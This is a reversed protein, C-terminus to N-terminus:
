SVLSLDTAYRLGTWSFPAVGAKPKFRERFWSEAPEDVFQVTDAAILLPRGLDLAFSKIAAEDVGSISALVPLPILPRLIALGACIRDIQRKETAGAADHLRAISKDLLSRITDDVTTPNPGLARLIDNLPAERSLAMAQVRPNQFSLRRFEDVDQETAEPFSQRLHVATEDRSFPQLELQLTDPPPDLHHRRHTRCLAVLRVGNPLQERLLDRVFSRAEGIEEAAMQANDAADVIICLLAQANKSRLSAISQRLRYIFAKMYDSSDAHPSPILPHCLGRSALENAIQVLADKHRHRYGTASRYQGNGYCDYLVGSSGTPLRLKIRTAFVTKGVGAAAHVIIPVGEAEIIAQIFDTEQERPVAYELDKIVCPAPFLREWSTKLARLVDMRTIRPNDKSESLAKRTVLEKLQVPADVDDGPLYCSIDQALLNRQDWLGEQDDELRLLRCFRSLATGSLGTFRELKKLNSTDRTPTGSAAGRIVELFSANIPRNSVFWFELKSDLDETGLRQQLVKYREAFGSLTRELESPAWANDNRVTSHKTQIYRILTAHEIDESGYYEAVDILEDGTTSSEGSAVESPSAGEITIAELDADPRLLLLCRRAAWIYHFQDGDRSTRVLNTPPM